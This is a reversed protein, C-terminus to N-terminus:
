TGHLLMALPVQRGDARQRKDRNSNRNNAQTEDRTSFRHFVCPGLKAPSPPERCRWRGRSEIRGDVFRKTAAKRATKSNRVEHMSRPRERM